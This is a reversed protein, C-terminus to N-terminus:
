ILNVKYVRGEVEVPCRVCVSSTRVLGYTLTSVVLDFQLECVLLGLEQVCSESVFSHQELILFCAALSALFWVVVLSSTVQVRQRQGRWRMSGAQLKLGAAEGGKSLRVLLRIHLDRWQGGWLPVIEVFTARGVVITAGASVQYSRTFVRWMHDGVMTASSGELRPLFAKLGRFSHILGLMCSRRRKVRPRSWSSRSVRQQPYQQAKVELKMKEMVRAKEVLAAFNKISLPAVM